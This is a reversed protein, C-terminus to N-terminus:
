RPLDGLYRQLIADYRGDQRTATLAGNVADRLAEAGQPLAFGYEERDVDTFTSSVLYAGSKHALYSNIPFDQLAGDIDGRGLAAVMDTADEYPVLKAATARQAAYDAGTTGKQVGLRHGNLGALSAFRAADDKRVLLSQNVEFYGDSFLYRQRREDTISVASAVLDCRGAASTTSSPTSTPTASSRACGSTPPSRGCWTSTSARPDDTGDPFEFPEYPMDTCATLTGDVVTDVLADAARGAAAACAPSLSCWDWLWSRALRRVTVVKADPM